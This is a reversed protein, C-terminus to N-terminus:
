MFKLRLCLFQGTKETIALAKKGGRPLKDHKIFTESLTPQKLSGSTQKKAETTKHFDEQQKKNHQKLHAILNTKSRTAVDKKPSLRFISGVRGVDSRSMKIKIACATTTDRPSQM